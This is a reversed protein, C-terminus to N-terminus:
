NFNLEVKGEKLVERLETKAKEKREANEVFLSPMLNKSAQLTSGTNQIDMDIYKSYDEETFCSHSQEIKIDKKYKETESKDEKWNYPRVLHLPVDSKVRFDKPTQNEKKENSIVSYRGETKSEAINQKLKTSYLSSAASAISAGM